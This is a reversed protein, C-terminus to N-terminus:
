AAVAMSSYRRFGELFWAPLNREPDNLRVTGPTSFLLAAAFRQIGGEQHLSNPTSSLWAQVADRQQVEQADLPEKQVGSQAMAWFRDGFDASFHRGLEERGCSLLLQLTQLRVQRLEQLIEQDEPDIYYLNSLGLMRNLFIRDSFSPQGSPAAATSGAAAPQTAPEYRRQYLDFLWAPLKAAADDVRLKLPPYFPMLALLLIHGTPDQFGCVRLQQSLQDRRAAAAPGPLDATCCRELFLCYVRGFPSSLLPELFDTPCHELFSSFQLAHESSQAPDPHAQGALAEAQQLLWVM